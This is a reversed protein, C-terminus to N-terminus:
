RARGSLGGVLVEPELSGSRAARHVGRGKMLGKLRRGIPVPSVAGGGLEGRHDSSTVPAILHPGGAYRLLASLIRLTERRPLRLLASLAAAESVEVALEGIQRGM